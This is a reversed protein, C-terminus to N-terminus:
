CFFLDIIYGGLVLIILVFVIAPIMIVILCIWFIEEIKKGNRAGKMASFCPVAAFSMGALLIGVCYLIDWAVGNVNQFDDKYIGGILGSIKGLYLGLFLLIISESTTPVGIYLVGGCTQLTERTNSLDFNESNYRLIRNGSIVYWYIFVCFCIIEQINLVWVYGEIGFDFMPYGFLTDFTVMPITVLEVIACFGYTYVPKNVSGEARLINIFILSGIHVFTLLIFPLIADWALQLSTENSGMLSMLPRGILILTVSIVISSIVGLIIGKGVVQNAGRVDGEGLKESALSSIGIGLGDGACRIITVITWLMFAAIVPIQGLGRCIYALVIIEKVAKAGLSLLSNLLMYQVTGPTNNILNNVFEQEENSNSIENM